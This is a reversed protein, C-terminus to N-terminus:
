SWPYSSQLIGVAVHGQDTSVVATWTEMLFIGWPPLANGCATLTHTHLWSKNCWNYDGDAMTLVSYHHGQVPPRSAAWFAARMRGPKEAEAGVGGTAMRTFLCGVLPVM